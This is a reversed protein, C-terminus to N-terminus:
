SKIPKICSFTKAVKPNTKTFLKAIFNNLVQWGQMVGHYLNCSNVIQLLLLM